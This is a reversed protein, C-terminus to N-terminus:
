FEYFMMTVGRSSYKIAATIIISVFTIAEPDWKRM